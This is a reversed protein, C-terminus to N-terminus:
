NMMITPLNFKPKHNRVHLTYSRIVPIYVGTNHSCIRLIGTSVFNNFEQGMIASMCIGSNDNGSMYFELVM